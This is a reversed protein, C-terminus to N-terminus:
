YGIVDKMKEPTAEVKAKTETKSGQIIPKPDLGKRVAQDIKAKDQKRKAASGPINFPPQPNDADYETQAARSAQNIRSADIGTMTREDTQLENFAKDILANPGVQTRRFHQLQQRAANIRGFSSPGSHYEEMIARVQNSGAGSPPNDNIAKVSRAEAATVYPHKGDLMDQIESDLLDGRNARANVEQTAQYKQQNFVAEKRRDDKFDKDRAAERLKVVQDEGLRNFEGKDAATFFASTDILILANARKTLVTKDFDLIKDAAQKYTLFGKTTLDGVLNSFSDYIATRSKEDGVMSASQSMQSAAVDLNALGVDKKKEFYGVAAHQRAAIVDNALSAEIARRNRPTTAQALTADYTQQVDNLVNAKYEEPDAYKIKADSLAAQMGASGENVLKTREAADAGAQINSFLEGVGQFAKELENWAQGRQGRPVGIPQQLEPVLPLTPM